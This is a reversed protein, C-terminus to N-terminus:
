YLIIISQSNYMGCLGTNAKKPQPFVPYVACIHHILPTHTIISQSNYRGCLGTNAKKPQPFVPYVACMHHILPTHTDVLPLIM